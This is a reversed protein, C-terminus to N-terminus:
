SKPTRMGRPQAPLPTQPVMPRTPKVLLNQLVKHGESSGLHGVGGTESKTKKPNPPQRRSFLDYPPEELHRHKKKVRKQSNGSTKKTLNKNVRVGLIKVLVGGGKKQNKQDKKLQTKSVKVPTQPGGGVGKKVFPATKV